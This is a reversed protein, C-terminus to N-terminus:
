DFHGYVVALSLLSQGESNKTEITAKGKSILNYIKTYEGNKAKEVLFEQLKKKMNKSLQTVDIEDPNEFSKINNMMKYKQAWEPKWKKMIFKAELNNIYNIAKNGNSDVIDPDAGNLLLLKIVTASGNYAAKHLATKGDPNV